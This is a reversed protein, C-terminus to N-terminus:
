QINKFKFAPREIAREIIREDPIFPRQQSLNMEGIYPLADQYAKEPILGIIETGTVSVGHRQAAKRVEIFAKHLPTLSLDTLNTSVQAFGYEEIYWGIAKVGKLIGPVMIPKGNGDRMVEGTKPDTMPRGSERIEKAIDNAVTVSATNLNFNVAILFHRAGVVSCGTRAINDDMPRAGFDPAEEPDKMREALAEYEGKRCRALNRFKERIASAGYCYCPIGTVLAIRQALDRAMKACEDLSIGRVPVIPVVDAAGIRPHVGHHHRMDILQGARRVAYFAAECVEMPTGAITFVTRGADAGPDIDLIKVFGERGSSMCYEGVSEIEAAIQRIIGMDRGESFNPVCEVLPLSKINIDASYSM